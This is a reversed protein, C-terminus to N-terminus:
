FKVQKASSCISSDNHEVGALLKRIRVFVCRGDTAQPGFDASTYHTPPVYVCPPLTVATVGPSILM